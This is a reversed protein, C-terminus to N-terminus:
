IPLLQVLRSLDRCDGDWLSGEPGQFSPPRVEFASTIPWNRAGRQLDTPPGDSELWPYTGGATTPQPPLIRVKLRRIWLLGRWQRDSRRVPGGRRVLSNRPLAADSGLVCIQRSIPAGRGLLSQPTNRSPQTCIGGIERMCQDTRAIMPKRVVRGAIAIWEVQEAVRM